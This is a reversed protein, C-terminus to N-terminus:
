GSILLETRLKDRGSGANDISYKLTVEEVNFRGFIERIEPTDNISLLFHGKIGTLVGALDMFDKEEFNYEYGKIQWYPPDLYFLTYPRDYRPILDRFDLCEIQVQALRRWAEELTEELTFLNLRPRGVTITGFTRHHM